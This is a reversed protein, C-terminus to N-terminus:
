WYYWHPKRSNPPNDVLDLDEITSSLIKHEWARGARRQPVTMMEHIWWMPTTMWTREHYSRKKKRRVGALDLYRYNSGEAFIRGFRWDSEPEIYRYPVDKYTRSM